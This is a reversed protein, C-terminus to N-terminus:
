CEHHRIKDIVARAHLFVEEANLHQTNLIHADQAPRLPAHAREEDRKDRATLDNFAEDTSTTYQGARRRAREHPCATLFFKVDAQPCIVTGADRGDIVVGQQAKHAIIARAQELVRARVHIDQALHSAMHSVERSRLHRKDVTAGELDIQNILQPTIPKSIQLLAYALTRYLLGSDLHFFGYYQELRRALTGKGSAAPGDITIIM